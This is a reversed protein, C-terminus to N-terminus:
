AREDAAARGSRRLGGLDPADDPRARQDRGRRHRQPLQLRGDLRRRQPAADLTGARRLHAARRAAHGAGAHRVAPQRLDQPRVRRLEDQAPRRRCRKNGHRPRLRGAADQGSVHGRLREPRTLGRVLRRRRQRLEHPDLQRAPADHQTTADARRLHVVDRGRRTERAITGDTNVDRTILYEGTQTTRAVGYEYTYATVHGEGDTVSALNGRGDTSPQYDLAIGYVDQGTRFGTALAFSYSSAFSQGGGSVSWTAVRDVIYPVFGYQFTRTVVRTGAPGSETTRWARGYDNYNTAAYDHDVVHISQGAGSTSGSRTTTQVDMLPVRINPDVNPGVIEIAFSIPQSPTWTLSQREFVAGAASQVDRGALLGIQWVPVSVSSGVGLFRFVTTGCPAAFISENRGAGQSFAYTWLGPAVDRGSTARTKLARSRIAVTSGLTYSVEQWTYDIIGGNPTQVRRLENTPNDGPATAYTFRWDPGLPPTVAVLHRYGVNDSAAEAFIWKRTGYTMTVGPLSADWAFTLTRSTSPGLTQVISKIGDRPENAGTMYSIVLANGFTDEIRTAYRYSQGSPLDISVGFTYVVGNPMLVQPAPGSMRYRWFERTVYDGSNDAHPFLKHASGDPMEIALPTSGFPHLVRGLHMTWGIGIWNAETLADGQTEWSKFIKSNYTRQIRLDFGANGPLTLDTFTLLLNGTLPDVHEFPLMSEYPRNAKFGSADFVEHARAPLTACLLLAAWRTAGRTAWRPGTGAHGSELDRAISPRRHAGRHSM